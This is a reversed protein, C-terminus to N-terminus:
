RDYLVKGNRDILTIRINVGPVIAALTDLSRFNGSALLDNKHIYNNTLEAINDLTVEFQDKRFNKEREFQFILVLITFVSFILSFNLFLKQRYSLKIRRDRM